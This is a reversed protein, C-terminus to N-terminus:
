SEMRLVKVIPTVGDTRSGELDVDDRQWSITQGNATFVVGTIDSEVFKQSHHGPIWAAETLALPGPRVPLDIEAHFLKRPADTLDANIQIPTPQSYGLASVFLFSLWLVRSAYSGSAM